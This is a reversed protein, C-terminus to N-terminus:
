FFLYDLVFTITDQSKSTPVLDSGHRGGLVKFVKTDAQDHRYEVRAM